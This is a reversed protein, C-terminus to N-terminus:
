ITYKLSCGKVRESQAGHMNRRVYAPLCYLDKIISAGPNAGETPLAYHINAANLYYYRIGKGPIVSEGYDAYNSKSIKASRRNRFAGM